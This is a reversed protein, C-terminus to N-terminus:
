ILDCLTASSAVITCESMVIVNVDETREAGGLTARCTYRGADSATLPNFTLTNVNGM